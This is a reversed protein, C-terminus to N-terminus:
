KFVKGIPLRLATAIKRKERMSPNLRGTTIQSIVAKNIGSKRVIFSQKIGRDEIFQKLKTM